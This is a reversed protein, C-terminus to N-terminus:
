LKAAYFSGQEYHAPTSKNRREWSKILKKQDPDSGRSGVKVMGKDLRERWTALDHEAEKAIPSEKNQDIFRMYREIISKVDTVNEVSRRLSALRRAKMCHATLPSASISPM